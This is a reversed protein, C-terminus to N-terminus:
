KVYTVKKWDLEHPEKGSRAEGFLLAVAFTFGDPFKMRSKFKDGSEGSLPLGAMGCIVNGLGTAHAALAANECLIGWDMMGYASGDSLIVLMCPANYFLKGGRAKMREFGSKDESNALTEMGAADMEDILSKDTVMILHWPQRNVASPSALAASVVANIKEDSVPEGTFDRCSYRDAIAKLTENM